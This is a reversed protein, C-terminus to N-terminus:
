NRSLLFYCFIVRIIINYVEYCFFYVHMSLSVCIRILRKLEVVDLGLTSLVGCVMVLPASVSQKCHLQASLEHNYTPVRM